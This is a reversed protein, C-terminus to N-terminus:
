LASCPSEVIAAPDSVGKQASRSPSGFKRKGEEQESGEEVQVESGEEVQVKVWKLFM